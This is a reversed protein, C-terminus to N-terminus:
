MPPSGKPSTPSHFGRPRSDEAKPSTKKGKMKPVIVFAAAILAIVVVAVGAGIFLATNDSGGDSSASPSSSPSPNVDLLLSVDPEAAATTTTIASVVFSSPQANRLYTSTTRLGSSPDQLESVFETAAMEGTPATPDASDAIVFQVDVSTDTLRRRRDSVTAETVHFGSVSVRTADVGAAQSFEAELSAQFSNLASTDTLVSNDVTVAIDVVVSAQSCPLRNCAVTTLPQPAAACQSPDVATNVPDNLVCTISRTRVGEDGCFASCDGFAGGKWLSVLSSPSPSRTPTVSPTRSPSSTRSATGPSPSPSPSPSATTAIFGSGSSIVAPEAKGCLEVGFLGMMDQDEHETLHCHTVYEGNFDKPYFRFTLGSIPSVDRWEGTRVVDPENSADTQIVQHHNIHLQFPHTVATQLQREERLRRPPPGGSGGGAGGGAAPQGITMEYIEDMCMTVVYDGEGFGPFQQGNISPPALAVSVDTTGDTGGVSYEEASLGRLDRLYDPFSVQETPPFSATVHSTGPAEAPPTGVIINFVTAQTHMNATSVESGAYESASM